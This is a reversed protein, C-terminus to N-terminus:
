RAMTMGLGFFIYSPGVDLQRFLLTGIVGLIVLAVCWRIVRRRKKRNKWFGSKPPKPAAPAAKEMVDAM